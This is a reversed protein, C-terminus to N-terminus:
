PKTFVLDVAFPIGAAIRDRGAWLDATTATVRHTTNPATGTVEVTCDQLVLNYGTDMRGDNDTDSLFVYRSTVGYNMGNVTSDPLNQDPCASTGLPASGVGLVKLLVDTAGGKVMCTAHQGLADPVGQVEIWRGESCPPRMDLSEVDGTLSASYPGSGDTLFGPNLSTVTVMVPPPAPPKGGKALAPGPASSETPAEQCGTALALVLFPFLLTRSRTM